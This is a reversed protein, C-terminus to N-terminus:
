FGNLVGAVGESHTVGRLEWEKDVQTHGLVETVVLYIGESHVFLGRVEVLGFTLFAM